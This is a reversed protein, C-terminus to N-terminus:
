VRLAFPNHLPERSWVRIDMIFACRTKFCNIARGRRATVRRGSIHHMTIKFFLDMAGYDAITSIFYLGRASYYYTKASHRGRGRREGPCRTQRMETIIRKREETIKWSAGHAADSFICIAFIVRVGASERRQRSRNIRPKGDEAGEERERQKYREKEKGTLASASRYGFGALKM